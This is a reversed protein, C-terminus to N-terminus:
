QSILKNKLLKLNNMVIQEDEPNTVGFWSEKVPYLKIKLKEQKILKSIDTPLLCELNNDEKHEEKFSDVIESLNNIVEPQLAFFNMSCLDEPKLKFQELKNKEIGFTEKIDLVYNDKDIQFIGRNAKGNEPLVDILKYGITASTKNNTLHDVLVKFAGEGYIDDGNCLVFPCDILDRASCLADTTGWPKDRIEPNFTQRAYHIPIGRYNDSFNEKFLAETKNSVIFIIKTFGSLLAQNLSYEILSEGKPGVKAFQKIKGGFRSSMGAVMYVLAIEKKM